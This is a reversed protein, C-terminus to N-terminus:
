DFTVQLGVGRPSLDGDVRCAVAGVVTAASVRAIVEGSDTTEITLHAANGDGAAFGQLIWIEVLEETKVVHGFHLFGVIGFVVIEVLCKFIKSAAVACVAHAQGIAVGVDRLHGTVDAAGVNPLLDDGEDVALGLEHIDEVCEVNTAAVPAVVQVALKRVGCHAGNLIFKIEVVEGERVFVRNQAGLRGGGSGILEIVIRVSGQFGAGGDTTAVHAGFAAAVDVTGSVKFGGLQGAAKVVTVSSALGNAGRFAVLNPTDVVGAVVAVIVQVASVVVVVIQVANGLGHVCVVSVTAVIDDAQEPERVVCLTECAIIKLVKVAKIAAAAEAVIGDRIGGRSAGRATVSVCLASKAPNVWHTTVRQDFGRARRQLHVRVLQLAM